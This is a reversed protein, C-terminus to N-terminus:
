KVEIEGNLYKQALEEDATTMYMYWQRAKRRAEKPTPACCVYWGDNDSVWWVNSHKHYGIRM